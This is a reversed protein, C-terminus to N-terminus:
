LKQDKRTEKRDLPNFLDHDNEKKIKISVLRYFFEM